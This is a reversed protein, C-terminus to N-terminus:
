IWRRVRRKYSLYVEGFKDELYIEEPMIVHRDLIYYLPALILLMVPADALLALGAFCVLFGLYIPNRSYKYPGDEIIVNTPQDPRINTGADEFLRRCRIIVAMGGGLLLLGPWGWGHGMNMPFVWDLVIGATVALLLIVPPLMIVQPADKIEPEMM